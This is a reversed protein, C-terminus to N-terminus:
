RDSEIDVTWALLSSPNSETTRQFIEDAFHVQHVILYKIDDVNSKMEFSWSQTVQEFVTELVLNDCWDQAGETM